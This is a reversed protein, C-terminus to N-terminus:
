DRPFPPLWGHHVAVHKGLGMPISPSPWPHAAIHMGIRTPIPSYQQPHGAVVHWTWHTDSPVTLPVLPDKRSKQM